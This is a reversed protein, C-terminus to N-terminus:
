NSYGPYRLCSEYLYHSKFGLIRINVYNTFSNCKSIEYILWLIVVKKGQRIHASDCTILDNASEDEVPLSKACIRQYFSLVQEPTINNKVIWSSFVGTLYATLNNLCSVSSVSKRRFLKWFSYFLGDIHKYMVCYNLLANKYLSLFECLRRFDYNILITKFTRRCLLSSFVEWASDYSLFIVIFYM